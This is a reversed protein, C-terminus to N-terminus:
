FGLYGGCAAPRTCFQISGILGGALAEFYAVGNPPAFKLPANALHSGMEKRMMKLLAPSALDLIWDRVNGLSSLSAAIDRVEPESLYLLLGETIVLVRTSSALVDQLMANRAKADTLDAGIRVLRCRPKAGELMRNKEAILPPLDVEIWHLSEALDLRYPRTDLGAALNVVCDFEDAVVDLILDDILKTRAIIPWGNRASAPMFHAIARGREGALRHAFPDHFLSDPRATEIARYVAVWRATDSVGTVPSEPV